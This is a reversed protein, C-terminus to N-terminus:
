ISLEIGQHRRPVSFDSKEFILLRNNCGDRLGAACCYLLVQRTTATAHTYFIGTTSCDLDLLPVPLPWVRAARGLREIGPEFTSPRVGAARDFMARM